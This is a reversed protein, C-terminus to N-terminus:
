EERYEAAKIDLRKMIKQFAARTLEAREASQTVNGRTEKLLARAYQGTFNDVIAQKANKYAMGTYSIPGVGQGRGSSRPAHEAFNLDDLQIIEKRSFMVIRRVVNQLERVNGPWERQMLASVARQCFTKPPIELEKCVQKTFHHTLLPIDEVIQKLSPTHLTVVNLRYFLDERFLKNEIMEELNINTLAIVRVDVKHTQTAGLPRVESEQLVRLLKSQISLPLDAVEDLCITGGDAEDFLGKKAQTADTFAGKVHGFLESELLHEPIAPCNVMVLPKERRSSLTHLARATLEKGTGSEGRVMTSYNTRAVIKLNYHFDKMAPSDGVFGTHLYQDGTEQVHQRLIFNERILRNRELGKVVSRILFQKDFPKTIFDYAGSRIAGVATEITGHGTMMVVTMWPDIIRMEKLLDLGNMGPMKIDVLALDFSEEQLKTLAEEANACISVGIEPLNRTIMRQLGTRMDQEDDVILVGVDNM